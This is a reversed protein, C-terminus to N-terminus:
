PSSKTYCDARRSSMYGSQSGKRIELNPQSKMPNLHQRLRHRRLHPRNGAVPQAGAARASFDVFAFSHRRRVTFRPRQGCLCPRHALWRQQSRVSGHGDIRRSCADVLCGRASASHKPPCAARLGLAICARDAADGLSFRRRRRAPRCPIRSVLVHVRFRGGGLHGLGRGTVFARWFIRRKSGVSREAKPAFSMAALIVGTFTIAMGVARLAHIREGSALALVVTLAPYSSSVPGVISMVGIEFSHYLSLSATVNLLGAVVTLAWPQWGPAVHSFGGNFKLYVSLALFGFFQMFFLTRYAGVRRSAFRAAFDAM